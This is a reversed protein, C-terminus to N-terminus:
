SRYIKRRKCVDCFQVCRGHMVALAIEEDLEWSDEPNVGARWEAVEEEEYPNLSARGLALAKSSKGLQELTTWVLKHHDALWPGTRQASITESVPVSVQTSHASISICYGPVTVRKQNCMARKKLVSM